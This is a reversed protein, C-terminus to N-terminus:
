KTIKEVQQLWNSYEQQEKFDAYMAIFSALTDDVGQESLYDHFSGQLEDDLEDFAPGTYGSTTEEGNALFEVADIEVTESALCRFRLLKSGSKMDVVFPMVTGEEEDEGEQGEGEGEMDFMGGRDQSDRVDFMVTIGGGKSILRVEAEGPVDLLEMNETVINKLEALDPPMQASGADLDHKLERALVSSLSSAPRILGFNASAVAPSVTWQKAALTGVRRLSLLAASM